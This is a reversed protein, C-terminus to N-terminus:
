SGLPKRATAIEQAHQFVTKVVHHASRSTLAQAHTSRAPVAPKGTSFLWEDFLNTLDQQSVQESLAIFQSTTGNGYRHRHAWKQLIDFFASGGVQERLAQLVLGGRVYVPDSFLDLTGPDSINVAWLPDGDPVNTMLNSMVDAPTFQGKHQAWLWEAYTAFGENLWIDSWRDLSVSDGYWQHATEHAVVWADDKSGSFFGASYFSRTQTELAYGVNLNDVIAGASDFPYPGFSRSLVKIVEGQQNLAPRTSKTISPDTASLIRLGSSTQTRTIDFHGISLILLYSAMPRGNYWSWTTSGDHHQKKDVLRGNSIAALGHPVTIDVDFLAKDTPHENVPMWVSAGPPEGSATAGDSTTFWGNEYGDPTTVTGPKGHYRVSVRFVEDAPLDAAPTIVLEHDGRRTWTAPGGSVAVADVHLGNLDLNFRSLQETARATMVVTGSVKQSHNTVAVRVGYHVADYGGNGDTPFYPDGIGASGNNGRRADGAAAGQAAMTAVVSFMSVVAVFGTGSRVLRHSTISRHM